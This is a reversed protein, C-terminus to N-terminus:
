AKEQGALASLAADVSVYPHDESPGYLVVSGDTKYFVFLGRYSAAKRLAVRKPDNRDLFKPTNSKVM